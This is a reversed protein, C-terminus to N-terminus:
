QTKHEKASFELGYIKSLSDCISRMDEEKGVENHFSIPENKDWLTAYIKGDQVEIVLKYQQTEM